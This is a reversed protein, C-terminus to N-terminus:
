SVSPGRERGFSWSISAGRVVGTVVRGERGELVPRWPVLTFERSKEVLAMPGSNLDIRRRLVGEIRDGQRAAAYPLGTEAAIAQAIDAREMGELRRMLGARLLIREGDQEALDQQLLWQRRQALAQRAARGFGADRLPEPAQSLLERDLWTPGLASAQREVSLPSLVEVVVPADLAKRREFAAARALHDAPVTWTGDAGREVGAGGRRLAELRRLHAQAFGATAAPDHALHHDLSYRGGNARAVEAVTQDAVTAEVSRPSVRVVADDPIMETAAGKGIDIYHARGDCGDIIMFHRDGVEDSLGRRVLRGVLPRQGPARPEFVVQDSAAREVGAEALARYLTKQIDGREGLTRLTAELGEDLRWLTPAVERALGLRALTQLRGARAAYQLPDGHRPSVLGDEDVAALLRRDLSTLREQKAERTLRAVIEQDSIPGLDFSVLDQARERLGRTLYDKAIILDRGREDRGRILVHTHPHGTNHHDVAVWDLRTGLDIEVQRMLRRTLPKLDDYRAGDEASVIMRFQRADGGAQARDLFARGDARDTDAGYLQGPLGERTVGDRQIYRLHARATALGKGSLRPTSIKIVVRRSRLGARHDGTALVAAVGAGRGIRAGTFGTRGSARGFRGGSALMAAGLVRSVYSKARGGAARPKGLRPEFEDDGSM